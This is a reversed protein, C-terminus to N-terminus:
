FNLLSKNNNQLSLQAILKKFLDVLLETVFKAHELMHALLSINPVITMIVDDINLKQHTSVKKAHSKSLTHFYNLHYHTRRIHRKVEATDIVFEEDM